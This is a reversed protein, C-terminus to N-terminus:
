YHSSCKYFLREHNNKSEFSIYRLFAESVRESDLRPKLFVLEIENSYADGQPVVAVWRRFCGECFLM